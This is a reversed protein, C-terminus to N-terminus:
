RLVHEGTIPQVQDYLADYRQLWPDLAFESALRQRASAARRAAGASDEHIARIAGALAIADEPEVLVAERPTVVDPVGGVRTGVVPVGAAMAEFLVIPTGETRSSLVFVDFASTLRGAEPVNGHWRIREAMGLAQARRELAHRDRGDGVFSVVVPLGGLHAMAEVLVDPGKERSVRGVWGVHFRDDPVGLERRAAAPELTAPRGSWANPVVHLRDRPVGGAALEEGLRRSVAVVADFRRYAARQLREYFRNKWGGGTFGHVTTVTPIAFRRAIGAAVVDSRYGHTHLVQPRLRRCLDAIRRREGPYDRNGVVLVNVGVGAEHLVELMPHGRHGPEVVAAAHVEQGRGAQGCSLAEVVRYLGGVEGLSFTHLIIM